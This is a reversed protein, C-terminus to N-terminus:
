KFDKLVKLSDCYFCNFMLRDRSRDYFRKQLNTDAILHFVAFIEKQLIITKRLVFLRLVFNKYRLENLTMATDIAIFRYTYFDNNNMFNCFFRENSM